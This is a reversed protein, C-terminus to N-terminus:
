VILRYKAPEAPMCATLQFRSMGNKMRAGEPQPHPPSCVQIKGATPASAILRRLKCSERPPKARGARGQPIEKPTLRVAPHPGVEPVFNLNSRFIEQKQQLSKPNFGGSM